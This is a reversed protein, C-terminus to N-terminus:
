NFEQLEFLKQSVTSKEYLTETEKYLIDLRDLARKLRLNSRVIGVYNTMIQQLEKLEQTILVMEEPLSTGEDNWDPIGKPIEIENLVSAAHLAARHSYVVAELLSNSALRNAGHLRHLNSRRCCVSTKISTQGNTNVKVGGCNYHAAPVVPIFDKTIDIGLQLCKSYINPFHGKLEEPNISGAILIFLILEM